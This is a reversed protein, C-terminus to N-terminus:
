ASRAKAARVKEALAAVESDLDEFAANGYRAKDAAIENMLKAIERECLRLYATRIRSFLSVRPDSMEGNILRRLSRATLGVDRGVRELANMQDGNGRSEREVMKRAYAAAMEPTFADTSLMAKAEGKLNDNALKQDSTKWSVNRTESVTARIPSPSKLFAFARGPLESRFPVLAALCDPAWEM